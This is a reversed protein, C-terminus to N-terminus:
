TNAPTSGTVRPPSVEALRDLSRDARGGGPLSPSPERGVPSRRGACRTSCRSGRGRREPGDLHLSLVAVAVDAVDLARDAPAPGPASNSATRASTPSTRRPAAATREAAIVSADVTRCTCETILPASLAATRQSQIAVLGVRPAMRGPLAVAARGAM